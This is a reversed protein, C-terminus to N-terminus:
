PKEWVISYYHSNSHSHKALKADRLLKDCIRCVEVFPLYRERTAHAGMGRFLPPSARTSSKRLRRRLKKFTAIIATRYEEFGRREYFDGVLLIGGPKLTDKMKKLIPELAMHHLTTISVVCDFQEIPFNWTNVDAIIFEINSFESNNKKAIRVMEPSLDFAVVRDFREALRPLFGGLGSGIELASEGHSPLQGSLYEKLLNIKKNESRRLESSFREYRLAVQDFEERLVEPSKFM